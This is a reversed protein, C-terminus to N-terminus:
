VPSLGYRSCKSNFISKIETATLTRNYICVQALRVKMGQNSGSNCFFTMDDTFANAYNIFVQFWGNAGITNGFAPTNSTSLGASNTNFFVEANRQGAGITDSTNAYTIWFGNSLGSRFDLFYQTPGVAKVPYEVWVEIAHANSISPTTLNGCPNLTNAPVFLSLYSNSASTYTNSTPVNITASGIANSVQNSITSNSATYFNFDYNAVIPNDSTDTVSVITSTTVITGGASGTRLNLQLTQTGETTLDQVTTFVVTATGGSVSVSGSNVNQTFDSAVANGNNDWYLTTGDLVNTTTITFTVSQSGETILNTSPVISYTPAYRSVKNNYITQIEDVTLPRDYICVQGVDIPMGQNGGGNMFFSMDDTFAAPYNIVLQTWGKGAILDALAPTSDTTTELFVSDQYFEAGQQGAGITSFGTGTIWFGDALGNRFDFLYQSYSENTRYRVWIEVCQANSISPTLIGGTPNPFNNPAYISLFKNSPNSEDFTNQLPENISAAGIGAQQNDITTANSTYFNFDYNAILPDTPAVFGNLGFANNFSNFDIGFSNVAKDFSQGFANM